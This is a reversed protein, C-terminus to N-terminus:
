VFWSLMKDLIGLSGLTTWGMILFLAIVICITSTIGRTEEEPEIKM